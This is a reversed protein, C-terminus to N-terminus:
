NWPHCTGNPPFILKKSNENKDRNQQKGGYSTTVHEDCVSDQVEPLIQPQLLHWPLGPCCAKIRRFEDDYNRWLGAKPDRRHLGMIRNIYAFLQPAAKYYKSTYIACFKNFWLLWEWFDKPQRVWSPTLSIQHGDRTQDVNMKPSLESRPALSGLEVFDGEWIKKKTKIDATAGGILLCSVSDGADKDSLGMMGYLASSVQDSNLLLASPDVSSALEDLQYAPKKPAFKPDMAQKRSKRQTYIDSESDSSSM